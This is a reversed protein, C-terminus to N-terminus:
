RIGALQKISENGKDAIWRKIESQVREVVQAHADLADVGLAGNVLLNRKIQERSLNKNLFEFLAPFDYKNFIQSQTTFVDIGYLQNDMNETHLAARRYICPMCVGCHNTGKRADWYRKRGRKGCSVSQKYIGRLVGKNACGAVMEGKTMFIYHNYLQITLGLANFLEQLRSLYYPHTTRTSLTSGRSPTLPYNLSITGNEPILLINCNPISEILYTAIGIFLISRSRFSSEKKLRNGSNDRTALSVCGQIWDFKDKYSLQQGLFNSLNTQDTNAGPSTPDFHSILLGRSNRSLQELQDIAGILSDLGGSFLSVFSYDNKNYIQLTNKWKRTKEKFFSSVTAQTFSISWYDGTLFSLISQLRDQVQNWAQLNNVPFCVEIDRSWADISYEYRDLLNDVGYVISSILFFDFSLSTTIPSFDHLSQFDINLSVDRQTGDSDTFSLKIDAFSGGQPPEAIIINVRM